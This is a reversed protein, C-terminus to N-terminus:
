STSVLYVGITVLLIGIFTQWSLFEGLTLAGIITAFVPIAGMLAGTRAAGVRQQSASLFTWGLFFHILGALAFYFYASLPAEWLLSLDEVLLSAVILILASVFLLMCTARYVDIRSGAKRNVLQFFGFGIAAVIAWWIGTM